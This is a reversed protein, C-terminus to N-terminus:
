LCISLTLLDCRGRKFPNKTSYCHFHNWAINFTLLCFYVQSLTNYMGSSARQLGPQWDHGMGRSGTVADEPAADPRSQGTRLCLYKGIQQSCCIQMDASNKPSCFYVFVDCCGVLYFCQSPFYIMNMTRLASIWGFTAFYSLAKPSFISPLCPFVVAKLIFFIPHEETKLDIM